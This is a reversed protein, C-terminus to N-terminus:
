RLLTHLATKVAKCLAHFLPDHAPGISGPFSPIQLSNEKYIPSTPQCIFVYRDLLHKLDQMRLSTRFLILNVGSHFSVQPLALM